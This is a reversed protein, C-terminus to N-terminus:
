SQTKEKKIQKYVKEMYIIRQVPTPAKPPNDFIFHNEIKKCFKILGRIWKLNGFTGVIDARVECGAIYNDFYDEFCKSFKQKTKTDIYKNIIQDHRSLLLYTNFLDDFLIHALEHGILAEIEYKSAGIKKIKDIDLLILHINENILASGFNKLYSARFEITGCHTTRAIVKKIKGKKDYKTDISEIQLCEKVKPYNLVSYIREKLNKPMPREKYWAPDFCDPRETRLRLNEWNEAKKVGLLTSIAEKQKHAYSKAQQSSWKYRNIKPNKGKFNLNIIEKSKAIAITAVFLLGLGWFHKLIKM